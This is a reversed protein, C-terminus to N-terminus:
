STRPRPKLFLSLAGGLAAICVGAWFIPRYNGFLDFVYGGLYSGLMAAIAEIFSLLGLLFGLSSLGFVESTATFRLVAQAGWAFGFALGFLYLM